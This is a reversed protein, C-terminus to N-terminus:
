ITTDAIDATMSLEYVEPTQQSSDSYLEIVFQIKHWYPIYSDVFNEGFM